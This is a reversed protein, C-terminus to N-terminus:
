SLSTRAEHERPPEAYTFGYSNLQRLIGRTQRRRLIDWVQNHSIFPCCHLFRFFIMSQRFSLGAYVSRGRSESRTTGNAPLDELPWSCGVHRYASPTRCTDELRGSRAVGPRCPNVIVMVLRVSRAGTWPDVGHAGPRYRRLIHGGRGIKAPEAIKGQHRGTSRTDLRPLRGHPAGVSEPLRRSYQDHSVPCQPGLDRRGARHKRGRSRLRPLDAAARKTLRL